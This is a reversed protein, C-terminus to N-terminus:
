KISKVATVITVIIFGALIDLKAKRKDTTNQM